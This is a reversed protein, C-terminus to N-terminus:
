SPNERVAKILARLAAVPTDGGSGGLGRRVSSVALYRGDYQQRLTLDKFHPGITTEAERWAVDLTTQDAALPALAARRVDGLAARVKSGIDECLGSSGLHPM